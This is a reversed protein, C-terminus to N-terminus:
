SRWRFWKAASARISRRTCYPKSEWFANLVGVIATGQWPFDHLDLLQFGAISPTRLQAEIEAKYCLVQLRGSAMLFDRAQGLM